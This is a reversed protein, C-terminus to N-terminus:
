YGNNLTKTATSSALVAVEIVPPNVSDSIVLDPKSNLLNRLRENESILADREVLVSRYRQLLEDYDM